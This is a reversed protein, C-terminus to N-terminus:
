AKFHSLQWLSSVLLEQYQLNATDFIRVSILFMVYVLPVFALSQFLPRNADATLTVPAHFSSAGHAALAESAQKDLKL